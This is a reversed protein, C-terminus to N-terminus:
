IKRLAEGNRILGVESIQCIKGHLWRAVFLEGNNEPNKFSLNVRIGLTGM